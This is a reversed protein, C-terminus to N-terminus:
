QNNKIAIEALSGIGFWSEPGVGHRGDVAEPVVGPGRTQWEFHMPAADGFAAELAARHSM